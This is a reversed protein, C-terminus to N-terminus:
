IGSSASKQLNPLAQRSTPGLLSPLTSPFPPSCNPWPSLAPSKSLPTWVGRSLGDSGEDILVDGPVHIIDLQCGHLIELRKLERILARLRPSRSTGKQVIDYTVMNDTFYFVKHNRFRSTAVPEQLLVEVLTRLEKWNSTEGTSQFTWTGMWSERDTPTPRDYFVGSGGTGTGSSYGFHLSFINADSPQSKCSLGAQLSSFWWDMEDLSSGSLQVQDYYVSKHGRLRPDM